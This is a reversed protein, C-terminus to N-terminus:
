KPELCARDKRFQEVTASFVQHRRRLAVIKRGLVVASIGYGAGLALLTVIHSYSWLWIVLAASWALGCLMGLAATGVALLFTDMIRDREEQLEVALLQFRNEGVALLRHALRKAAGALPMTPALTDDM